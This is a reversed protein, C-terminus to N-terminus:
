DEKMAQVREAAEVIRMFVEDLTTMSLGWERIGLSLSSKEMLEFVVSISTTARPLTYVRQTGVADALVAGKSLSAIIFEHVREVDEASNREPSMSLKMEYGSGFKTKLHLQSGLCQLTGDAMIGIRECLADAEEMSHTTLVLSRGVKANQIIRWVGQRTEPDLGTTPEDLFLVNPLGCLAIGLSLRRKMGGSLTSALSQFADGDLEVSEAIFQVLGRVYEEKAGKVRVYLLLHEEVTLNDFLCDFQPCLSINKHVEEIETEVDFGCINMYGGSSSLYGSLMSLTTTKGAGNPGLLGFCENYGIAVSLSKVAEKPPQGRKGPFTKWLGAIKIASDESSLNNNIVREHENIVDIDKIDPHLSAMSHNTSSRGRTKKLFRGFTSTELDYVFYLHAYLGVAFIVSSMIALMGITSWLENTQEPSGNFILALAHVFATQPIIDVIM